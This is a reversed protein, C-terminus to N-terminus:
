ATTAGLPIIELATIKNLRKKVDLDDQSDSSLVHGLYTFSDVLKSNKPLIVMCETKTNNYMIDHERANVECRAVLEQFSDVSPVM